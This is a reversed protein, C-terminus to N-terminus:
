AGRGRRARKKLNGIAGSTLVTVLRKGGVMLASDSERIKPAADNTTKAILAKPSEKLGIVDVKGYKERLIGMVGNKESESLESDAEFLIYRRKPRM